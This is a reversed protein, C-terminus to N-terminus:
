SHMDIFNKVLQEFQAPQDLMVFHRSGAIPDVMVDPTGTLLAKYFDVTQALTYNSPPKTRDPANYPVIELVPATIKPLDPRLDTILDERLWAAVAAPDSKGELAATPAVLTPDNTGITTMFNTQYTLAQAPTLNAYSAAAGDAMKTRVDPSLAAVPPFIPLGDVAIMAGVDSPHSEAFAFALTGGLSHGVIIPKVLKRQGLMTDLDRSFAAFLSTESKAAPRGDFGPLTLAYIDSSKTLRAITSAWVWPGCGLGPILVVARKGSGYRDVHLTGVDFSESAAPLPPLTTAGAESRATLFIASVFIAGITKRISM